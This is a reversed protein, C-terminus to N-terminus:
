FQGKEILDIPNCNLIQSLSIIYEASAKSINKQRQEYQQITRIPIESRSSLEKQTIGLRERYYKLRSDARSQATLSDMREIFAMIDMEHYKDYMSIVTDPPVSGIIEKFSLASYWQYHALAWGAWYEPSKDYSYHNPVPTSGSIRLALEAGSMGSIVTYDGNSFKIGYISDAFINMSETFGYGLCHVMYDAMAALTLKADALYTKDYAHIM